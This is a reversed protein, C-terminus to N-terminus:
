NAISVSPLIAWDIPEPEDALWDALSKNGHEFLVKLRALLLTEEPSLLDSVSSFDGRQEMRSIAQALRNM